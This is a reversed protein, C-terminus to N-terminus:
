KESPTAAPEAVAVADFASFMEDRGEELTKRPAAM